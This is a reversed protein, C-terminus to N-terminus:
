ADETIGRNKRCREHVIVVPDADGYKTAVTGCSYVVQKWGSGQNLRLAIVGCEPCKASLPKGVRMVGKGQTEGAGGAQCEGM